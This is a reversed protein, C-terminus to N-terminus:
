WQVYDSLRSRRSKAKKRSRERTSLNVASAGLLSFMLISSVMCWTCFAHIEFIELYYLYLSYISGALVLTYIGLLLTYRRSGAGWLHVVGMVTVATYLLLGLLALPIGWITSYHSSLVADCDMAPLCLSSAHRYHAWTLYASIGMGAMGLLPVARMFIRRPPSFALSAAKLTLGAM